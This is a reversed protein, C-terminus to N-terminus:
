VTYNKFDIIILNAKYDNKVTQWFSPSEKFYHFDITNKIAERVDETENEARCTNILEGNEWTYGNGVTLFLHNYAEIAGSFLSPYNLLMHRVTKELTM